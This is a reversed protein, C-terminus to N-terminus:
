SVNWPWSNLKLSNATGSCVASKLSTSTHERTRTTTLLARGSRTKTSSFASTETAADITGLSTTLSSTTNVYTGDAAGAPVLVPVEITCSTGSMVSGGSYTLSTTGALAGGCTNTTPGGTAALGTLAGGTGVPGGLNDTFSTITADDDPHVNDITFRLTVTDGPIAPDDLFEKTFTLGAVELDNSAPASTVMSSEVTATVMSTTNTHSGPAAGVPVDLTVSFTCSDGPDTLTGDMLTLLTDGATGVLTSGAGCPPDPSSPLNATLGTLAMALDDTFTIGTAPGSADPSHTLTFELTVTGGPEVPDDTFSKQLSPAALVMLTDSAPSGTQTAGDVTATIEETTNIYNGTPQDDPVTITVFFTCSDGAMGSAALTGGTLSLAQGDLADGFLVLTISGGCASGPLVASVPSPLFTTLEDIFEIDAAGSTPSTNAITFELIVDDGPLVPDDTFEKTLMPIPSVFLDDSAMNGTAPSGGVTGTIADTTNTYVGPVAMGPVQLTVSFTCSDEPEPGEPGEQGAPFELTVTGGPPVPAAGSETSGTVYANGDNDVAIGNAIDSAAGGIYGAYILATGGANVKAVFADQDANFTTDPGAAVPFSTHSSSTLGAVYVNGERDVAVDRAGDTRDGGIYGAYVVLSPDVVLPRSSDYAGFSFVSPTGVRTRNPRSGSNLRLKWVNVKLKKTPM